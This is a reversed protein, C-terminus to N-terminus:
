LDVGRKFVEIWSSIFLNKATIDWRPGTGPTTYNSFQNNFLRRAYPQTWTITDGNAGVVGTQRLVYSKAPVFQTMDTLMQDALIRRAKTFNAASFKKEIGSLDVSVKVGM